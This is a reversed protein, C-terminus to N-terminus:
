YVRYVIRRKGHKDSAILQVAKRNKVVVLWVGRKTKRVKLKKGGSTAKLALKGKGCATVTLISKGKGWENVDDVCPYSVAFAQSPLVLAATIAAAGLAGAFKKM